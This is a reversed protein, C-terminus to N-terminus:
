NGASTEWRLRALRRSAAREYTAAALWAQAIDDTHRENADSKEGGLRAAVALKTLLQAATPLQMRRLLGADKNISDWAVDGLTSQGGMVARALRRRLRELPDIEPQSELLQRLRERALQEDDVILTRIKM